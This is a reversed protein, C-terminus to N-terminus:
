CDIGLYDSSSSSSTNTIDDCCDEADSFSSTYHLGSLRHYDQQPNEPLHSMDMSPQGRQSGSVRWMNILRHIRPTVRIMTAITALTETTDHYMDRVM